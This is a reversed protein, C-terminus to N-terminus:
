RWSSGLSKRSMSAATSPLGPQINCPIGRCFEGGGLAFISRMAICSVLVTRAACEGIGGNTKGGCEPGALPEPTAQLGVVIQLGRTVCQPHGECRGLRNSGIAAQLRCGNAAIILSWERLQSPSGVAASTAVFSSRVRLVQKVRLVQESGSKRSSTGSTHRVVLPM